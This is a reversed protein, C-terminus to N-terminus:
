FTLSDSLVTASNNYFKSIAIFKKCADFYLVASKGDKDKFLAFYANPSKESSLADYTRKVGSIRGTYSKSLPAIFSMDRLAAELMIKRKRKGYIKAVTLVGSSLTYEYEISVYRWTFFILIWTLLPILAGMPIFNSAYILGFLVIVFLIYGLILFIRKARHAGESKKEVNYEIFNTFESM